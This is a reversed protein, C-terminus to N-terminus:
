KGAVLNTCIELLDCQCSLDTAIACNQNLYNFCIQLINFENWVSHFIVPNFSKILELLAKIVGFQQDRSNLELLLNSIVYMCHGLNQDRLTQQEVTSNALFAKM